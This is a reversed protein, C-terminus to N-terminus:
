GAFDPVLPFDADSDYRGNVRHNADSTRALRLPRKGVLAGAGPGSALAGIRMRAAQGNLRVEM